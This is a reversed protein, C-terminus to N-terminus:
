VIQLLSDQVEVQEKATPLVDLFTESNTIIIPVISDFGEAEIAALDFELLLDGVKIDDNDKIHSVFHKGDLKATDLGVHILVEVGNEDVM